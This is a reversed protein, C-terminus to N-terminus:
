PQPHMGSPLLHQVDQACIFTSNKYGTCTTLVHLVCPLYHYATRPGYFHAANHCVHELGKFVVM